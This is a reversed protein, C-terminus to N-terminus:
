SSNHLPKTHKKLNKKLFFLVLKWVIKNALVNEFSTLFSVNWTYYVQNRHELDLVIFEIEVFNLRNSEIENLNWFNLIWSWNKGKLLSWCFEVGAFGLDSRIWAFGLHPEIPFSIYPVLCLSLSGGIMRDVGDFGEETGIRDWCSWYFGPEIRVLCFGLHTKPKNIKNNRRPQQTQNNSFFLKQFHTKQTQNNSFLIKQFHTQTQKKSTRWQKQKQQILISISDILSLKLKVSFLGSPSSNLM